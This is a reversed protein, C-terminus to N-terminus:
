SRSVWAKLLQWVLEILGIPPVVVESDSGSDSGDTESRTESDDTDYMDIAKVKPPQESESACTGGFTM